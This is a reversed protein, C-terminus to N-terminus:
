DEQKNELAVLEAWRGLLDEASVCETESLVHELTEAAETDIEFENKIASVTLSESTAGKEELWWMLRGLLRVIGEKRERWTLDACASILDKEIDRMTIPM